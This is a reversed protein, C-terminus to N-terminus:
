GISGRLRGKGTNKLSYFIKIKVGDIKYFKLFYNHREIDKSIGVTNLKGFIKRRQELFKITKAREYVTCKTNVQSNPTTLYM